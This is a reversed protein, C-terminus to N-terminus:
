KEIIKEIKIIKGNFDSLTNVDGSRKVNKNLVNTDVLFELISNNWSHYTQMVVDKDDKIDSHILLETNGNEFTIRYKDGINGFHRGMAVCYYIGIKCLGNEDIYVSRLLSWQPSTKDTICRYDMWNKVANDYQIIDM